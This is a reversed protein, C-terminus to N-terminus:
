TDTSSCRARLPPAVTAAGIVAGRGVRTGPLLTAGTAIWAFDDIVIPKSFMRWLPDSLDHSASLIRVGNNICVFSGINVEAHPAIHVDRSVFTHKGIKLNAYKGNIEPSYLISLEGVEAGRGRLSARTSCIRTLALAQLIRKAWVVYWRRSLLQPRERRKWLFGLTSSM